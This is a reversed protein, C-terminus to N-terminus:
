RNNSPIIKEVIRENSFVRSLPSGKYSQVLTLNFNKKVIYNRIHLKEYLEKCLKNEKRRLFIVLRVM